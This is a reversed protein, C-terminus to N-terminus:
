DPAASGSSPSWDRYCGGLGDFWCFQRKGLAHLHAAARQVLAERLDSETLPRVVGDVTLNLLSVREATDAYSRALLERGPQSFRYVVFDYHYGCDGPKTPAQHDVIHEARIRIPGTDSQLWDESDM